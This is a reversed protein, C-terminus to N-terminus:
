RGLSIDNVNQHLQQAPPKQEQPTAAAATLRSTYIKLIRELVPRISFDFFKGKYTLTAGAVLKPDVTFDFLVQKKINIVFWESLAKLTRGQPEFAVTLSLVPLISITDHMKQLFIKLEDRSQININNQRMLSLLRDSITVGFKESLATELHFGTQFITDTITTLTTLFDNAETKTSFFESFDIQDM